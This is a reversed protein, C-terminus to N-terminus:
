LLCCLMRLLTDIRLRRLGLGGARSVVGGTGSNIKLLPSLGLTLKALKLFTLKFLSYNAVQPAPIPREKERREKINM